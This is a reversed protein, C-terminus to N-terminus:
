ADKAPGNTGRARIMEAIAQAMSDEIEDAIKACAEREELVSDTIAQALAARLSTAEITVVFFGPGSLLNHAVEMPTM